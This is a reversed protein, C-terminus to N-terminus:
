KGYEFNDSFPLYVLELEASANMPIIAFAAILIIIVLEITIIKRM